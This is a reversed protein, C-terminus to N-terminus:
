LLKRVVSRTVDIVWDIHQEMGVWLPLRVLRQSADDTVPLEGCARGFTRGAPSSHLPVYHFVANIGEANLTAILRARAGATPMLLYYIHGNHECHAPIIPRRLTGQRELDAFGSHYRAWLELRRRMIDGADQLQGWLFAATLEGPLFSSGVDVWTYKDVEGRVFKNRNTGKQWVIEARELLEGDNILLAGGHGSVVNKTEHFSLSALKGFSGLPKGRYSAMVCQAADEVVMLGHKRALEMIAGMECGVGAYHVVVIVRSRPTIAAEIRREDINLTDERVDVFVPVGGRLVFANATSVFTFSPMIIEDGPAVASLIASMELAATCSHTLLAKPCGVSRELWEECHRTFAGNGALVGNACAQQLFPIEKGTLFPRNFPVRVAAM